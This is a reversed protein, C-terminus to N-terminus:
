EEHLCNSVSLGDIKEYNDLKSLLTNSLEIISELQKRITEHTKPLATTLDVGALKSHAATAAKLAAEGSKLGKEREIASDCVDILADVVEDKMDGDKLATILADYNDPSEGADLDIDFSGGNADNEEPASELELVATVRDLVDSALKGFASNYNYVRGNLKDRNEFLTWAIVRSADQLNQEKGDLRKPLDKFLQEADDKIRTYAKPSGVWENLYLEAEMLAQLSNEIETRKRNLKQAIQDTTRGTMQLKHILQADGIWDYELKTEPKAQLGAEIDLIEETTADKPLVMCNVHSFESYASSDERLLARMGALRRNGNIVVGSSSILIPERQKEKSLVEIVPIVSDAKGKRALAELIEHQVQQCSEMEQGALFFDPDLNHKAIYENQDTFTRFNEMRYIPINISIRIIPLLYKENRFEYFEENETSSEVGKIIIAEREARASIKITFM